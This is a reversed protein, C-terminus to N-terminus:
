KLYYGCFFITFSMCHLSTGRFHWLAKANYVFLPINQPEPVVENVKRRQTFKFRYQQDMKMYKKRTELERNYISFRRKPPGQVSKYLQRTHTMGNHKGVISFLLRINAIHFLTKNSCEYVKVRIFITALLLHICVTIWSIM